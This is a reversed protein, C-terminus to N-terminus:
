DFDGIIRKTEFLDIRVESTTKACLVWDGVICDFFANECEQKTFVHHVLGRVVIALVVGDPYKREDSYKFSDAREENVHLISAKLIAANFASMITVRTTLQHNTNYVSIIM